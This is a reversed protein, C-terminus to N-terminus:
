LGWLPGLGNMSGAFPFCSQLSHWSSMTSSAVAAATSWAGARSSAPQTLQWEGWADFLGAFRSLLWRSRQRSHWLLGSFDPSEVSTSMCPKSRCFWSHCLGTRSSLQVPQWWGWPLSDTMNTAAGLGFAFRGIGTAMGAVALAWLVDKVTRLATRNAIM